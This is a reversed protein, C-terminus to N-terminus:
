RQHVRLCIVYQLVTRPLSKASRLICARKVCPISNYEITLPRTAVSLSNLAFKKLPVVIRGLQGVGAHRHVLIIAHRKSKRDSSTQCTDGSPLPAFFRVSPTLRRSPEM